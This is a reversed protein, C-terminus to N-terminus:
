CFGNERRKIQLFLSIIVESGYSEEVHEERNGLCYFNLYDTPHVNELKASKIEKAIIEYMMQM